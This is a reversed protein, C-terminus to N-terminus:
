KMHLYIIVHLSARVRLVVLMCLSAGLARPIQSSSLRAHLRAYKVAAIIQDAVTAHWRWGLCCLRQWFDGARLCIFRKADHMCAHM